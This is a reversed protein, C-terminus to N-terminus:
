FFCYIKAQQHLIIIPYLRTFFSKIKKIIQLLNKKLLVLRYLKIDVVQSYNCDKVWYMKTLTILTSITLSLKQVHLCVHRRLAFLVLHHRIPQAIPSKPVMANICSLPKETINIKANAISLPMIVLMNNSVKMNIRCDISKPFAIFVANPILKIEIIEM